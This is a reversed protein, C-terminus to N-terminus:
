LHYYLKSCIEDAETQTILEKDIYYKHEKDWREIQEKTHLYDVSHFQKNGESGKYANTLFIDICDFDIVSKWRWCMHENYGHYVETLISWSDIAPAYISSTTWYIIKENKTIVYFIQSTHNYDLAYIKYINSEKTLIYQPDCLFNKVPKCLKIEQLTKGMIPEKILNNNYITGECYIKDRELSHRIARIQHKNM